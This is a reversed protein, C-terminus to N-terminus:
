VGALVPDSQKVATTARGLERLFRYHSVYASRLNPLEHYPLGLQACGTKVAPAVALLHVHALRPFLHHEIHQNLGGFYWRLVSNKIVINTAGLVQAVAWEDAIAGGPGPHPFETTEVYHTVSLVAALATGGVLFTGALVAIVGFAPHGAFAITLVVAPFSLKEIILGVTRRLTAPAVRRGKLRGSVIFERDGNLVMVIGLLPYLVWIYLHQYRHWPRLAHQPSLRLLPGQTIDGDLGDINTYGHHWVNHKTTWWHWSIGIPGALYAVTWNLWRSRALAQHLATHQVVTLNAVIALGISVTCLVNIPVSLRVFLLLALSGYFWVIAPAITLWGRFGARFSRNEAQLRADVLARLVSHAEGKAYSASSDPKL